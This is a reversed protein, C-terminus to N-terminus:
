VLCFESQILNPSRLFIKQTTLGMLRLTGRQWLVLKTDKSQAMQKTSSRLCGDALAEEVTTPVKTAYLATNFALASQSMNGKGPSEIPYRSRRAEYDPDYRKPPIGRTTRPPLM